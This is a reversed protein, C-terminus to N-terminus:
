HADLWSAGMGVEVTLPVALRAANEMENKLIEIVQAQENKLADVVLEDHVQLILKSKLNEQEFRQAVRVMAIKMIDAASGQIPANVANREALGRVVANGSNIDPLLRRRGFLTTVYGMQKADSISKEMYERVAPYTTFYGDILHKAEARPISLRQSLGFVSIGYIIGFNATKARRRQERTVEEDAIHFIKAATATHIDKDEIFANILETDGSLSAMIRLEVQSYDAAILIHDDDAPVFARIIERGDDDRIPINQLNPDTSSLRGTATVTQNFSTHIRGTVSNVMQPLATVYTNMLKRLGRYELVKEIIPHRSSLSQLYEEDTSYQKTKTRKPKPDLQLKEFLVEGLQKSSNINLSPMDAMMRIESELLDIRDDLEEAYSSLVQTDLRVGNLEIDGLM